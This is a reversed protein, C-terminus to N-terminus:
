LFYGCVIAFILTFLAQLKLEKDLEAYELINAVRTYIIIAPILLLMYLYKEWVLGYIIYTYIGMLFFPLFVLIFHYFKSYFLGLTVAITMKNARRDQPIDRMNNLNLVGTALLGLASAPFLHLPDFSKTYLMVSGIVAVLGFFLFVFLDGLKRYGYAKKGVTYSIAAWVSLLGLLTYLVFLVIHNPLYATALLILASLFSLAAFIKVTNKMSAASIEGSAVARKEGTRHADTGKIGDGYDNAFNSLVQLLITTVLALVFLLVDFQEEHWALWYGM